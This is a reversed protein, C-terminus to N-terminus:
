SILEDFSSISPYDDCYKVPAKSSPKAMHVLHEIGHGRAARLVDLNDDAFLTHNRNFNLQEELQQWFTADEKPKGLEDACIIRDFFHRLDVKDMKIDLSKRHAATVLYVSKGQKKLFSLFTEVHPLIAILHAVEKKLAIIDLDLTDSWYDLDTWMLTCKVSRYRQYLEQKARDLELGNRAGYVEPLFQEWFYDDYYKDLLTGDMDLLVTSIGDWDFFNGNSRSNNTAQM